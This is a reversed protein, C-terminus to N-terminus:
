PPACGTRTRRYSSSISTNPILCYAWIETGARRCWEGLLALYHRYDGDEFFVPLRRAGRQTVHHPHEPIVM